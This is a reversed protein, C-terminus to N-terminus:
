RGNINGRKKINKHSGISNNQVRRSHIAINAGADAMYPQKTSLTYDLECFCVSFLCAMLAGTFHFNDLCDRYLPSFGLPEFSDYWLDSRIAVAIRPVAPDWASYAPIATCPASTPLPRDAAPLLSSGACPRCSRISCRYDDEDNSVRIPVIYRM